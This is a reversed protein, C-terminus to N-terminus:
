LCIMKESECIFGSAAGVLVVSSEGTVAMEVGSELWAAKVGPLDPTFYMTTLGVPLEPLGATAFILASNSTLYNISLWACYVKTILPVVRNYNPDM